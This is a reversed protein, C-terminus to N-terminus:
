KCQHQVFDQADGQRRFPPLFENDAFDLSSSVAYILRDKLSAFGPPSDLLTPSVWLADLAFELPVDPYSDMWSDVGM